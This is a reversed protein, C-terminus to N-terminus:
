NILMVNLDELQNKWARTWFSTKSSLFRFKAITNSYLAIMYYFLKQKRPFNYIFEFNSMIDKSLLPILVSRLILTFINM